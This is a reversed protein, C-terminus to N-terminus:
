CTIYIHEQELGEFFQGDGDFWDDNEKNALLDLENTTAIMNSGSDTCLAFVNGLPINYTALARKFMESLNTRNHRKLIKEMMITRTILETGVIYQLSVGLISRIFRSAIDMAFSLQKGEVEKEIYKQMKKYIEEIKHKVTTM